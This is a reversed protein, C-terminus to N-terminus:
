KRGGLQVLVDDLEMDPGIYAYRAGEAKLAEAKKLCQEIEANSKPEDIYLPGGVAYPFYKDVTRLLPDVPFWKLSNPIRTNRIYHDDQAVDASMGLFSRRSRPEPLEKNPTSAKNLIISQAPLQSAAVSNNRYRSM